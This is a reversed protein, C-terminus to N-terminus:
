ARFPASRRTPQLEDPTGSDPLRPAGRQASRCCHALVVCTGRELVTERCAGLRRLEGARSYRRAHTVHRGADRAPRQGASTGGGDHPRATDRSRGLTMLRRYLVCPRLSKASHNPMRLAHLVATDAAIRHMAVVRSAIQMEFMSSISQSLSSLRDGALLEAARRVEYYSVGLSTALVVALVGFIMLPLKRELPLSSPSRLRPAIPAAAAASYVPIATM